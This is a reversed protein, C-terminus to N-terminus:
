DQSRETANKKWSESLWSCQNKRRDLERRGIVQQMMLVLKAELSQETSEVVGKLETKVKVLKKSAAETCDPCQWQDALDRNLDAQIPYERMCMQCVVEEQTEKLEKKVHQDMKNKAEIKHVLGM